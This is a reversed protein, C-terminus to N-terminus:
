LSETHATVTALIRTHTVTMSTTSCCYVVHLRAQAGDGALPALEQQQQQQQQQQGGGRISSKAAGRAAAGVQEPVLLALAAAVVGGWHAVLQEFVARTPQHTCVVHM